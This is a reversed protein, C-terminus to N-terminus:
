LLSLKLMQTQNRYVHLISLTIMCHVFEFNNAIYDISKRIISFSNPVAVVVHDTFPSKVPKAMTTGGLSFLCGVRRFLPWYILDIHMGGGSVESSTFDVALM